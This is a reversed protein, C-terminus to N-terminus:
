RLPLAVCATIAGRVTYGAMTLARKAECLTAGTTVLDDILFVDAGKGVRSLVSLAGSLNSLRASAKLTSQDLVRRNHRLIDRVELDHSLGIQDAMEGIFNRGRRRIARPTSPIPVLIPLAVLDRVAWSLSYRLAEVLLADAEEIGNEKASLLINMAVPTYPVSSFVSITKMYTAAPSIMWSILCSSCLGYHLSRCGLCRPPFLLESIGRFLEVKVNEDRPV